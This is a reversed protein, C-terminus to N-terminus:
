RIPYKIWRCDIGGNSVPIKISSKMKLHKTLAPNGSLLWLEWGSFNNKLYTGIKLYLEILDNKGGLKRGYPPNCVIIGPKSNIKFKYFDKNYIKIYQSLGSLFINNKAQLFVEKDIEFGIVKSFTQKLAANNQIKLIEQNYISKKFDFWNKFLYNKKIIPINLANSVGEILFTGSGCMLDILPISSDWETIKMLGAAFNEKLPANGLSPRYGRKHLSEVTSQLSLVAQNDHLHLHVILYPNNICINSREGYTARQLDVIANKVQLSTFHSHRLNRNKGTVYVCFTKDPPIWKLWDFSSQVGKYLSVKDFCHFSSVQRYFRFAIKSFFHLRYFTEHNCRFSVSRKLVNIHSGGYNIIEKALVKELGEPSSAIINM